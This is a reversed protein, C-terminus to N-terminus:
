GQFSARQEVLRPERVAPPDLHSQMQAAPPAALCCWVPAAWWWFMKSVSGLRACGRQVRPALVTHHCWPLLSVACLCLVCVCVSMCVQIFVRACVCVRLFAFSFLFFIFTKLDNWLFRQSPNNDIYVIQPLFSFYILIHFCLLSLSPSFLIFINLTMKIPQTAHWIFFFFFLM